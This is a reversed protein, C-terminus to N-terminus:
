NGHYVLSLPSVSPAKKLISKIETEALLDEKSMEDVSKSSGKSGAKDKDQGDASSGVGVIERPADPQLGGKKNAKDKAQQEAVKLREQMKAAAERDDKDVDGDGDKDALVNGAQQGTQSDIVPKGQATGDMAHKTKEMFGPTGPYSADTGSDFGRYFFVFVFTVTAALMFLRVRRPSPM